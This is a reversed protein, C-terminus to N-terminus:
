LDLHQADGRPVLVRRFVTSWRLPPTAAAIASREPIIAIDPLVVILGSAPLPYIFSLYEGQHSSLGKGGKCNIEFNKLRSVSHTFNLYSKHEGRALKKFFLYELNKQNSWKIKCCHEHLLAGTIKSSTKSLNLVCSTDAISELIQLNKKRPMSKSSINIVHGRIINRISIVKFISYSLKKKGFFTIKTQLINLKSEIRPKFDIM